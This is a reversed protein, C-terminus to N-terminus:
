GYSNNVKKLSPVLSLASEIRFKPLTLDVVANASNRESIIKVIQSIDDKKIASITEDLTKDENPLIIIMSETSNYPVSVWQAYEEGSKSDNKFVGWHFKKKIQMMQVPVQSSLPNTSDAPHVNQSAEEKLKGGQVTPVNFVGQSINEFEFLWDGKFYITSSLIMKTDPTIEIKRDSLRGNTKNRVYDSYIQQVMEPNKFDLEVLDVVNAPSNKKSKKKM